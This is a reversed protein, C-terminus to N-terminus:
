GGKEGGGEGFLCGMVLLWRKKAQEVSYGDVQAQGRRWVACKKFPRVCLWLCLSCFHFLSFLLLSGVEEPQPWVEGDSWVPGAIGLPPFPGDV